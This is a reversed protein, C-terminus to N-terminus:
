REIMVTTAAFDDPQKVMVVGRRSVTWGSAQGALDELTAYRTLTASGRALLTTVSTSPTEPRAISSARTAPSVSGAFNVRLRSLDLPALRLLREEATLRPMRAYMMVIGSAFWVLFVLGGAIGLWRHTYILVRRWDAGMGLPKTM